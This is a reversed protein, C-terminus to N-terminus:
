EHEVGGAGVAGQQLWLVASGPGGNFAFTLPRKGADAGDLSYAVFFMEALIKGDGRKIPLRGTSATYKLLKGDVTMQHHTVVPAVDSVDYEEKDGTGPKPGDTKQEDGPKIEGPKDAAQGPKKEKEKEKASPENKSKKEDPQNQSADSQQAAAGAILLCIVAWITLVRMSVSRM